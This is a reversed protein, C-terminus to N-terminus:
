RPATPEADRPGGLLRMYRVIEAEDEPTDLPGDEAALRDLLAALAREQRRSDPEARGTVIAARRAEAVLRASEEPTMPDDSTLEDLAVGLLENRVRDEAADALWASVTLGERAAADRVVGALEEDFSVSLKRAVM